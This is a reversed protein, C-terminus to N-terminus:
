ISTWQFTVNNIPILYKRNKNVIKLIILDIQRYLYSLIVYCRLECDHNTHLSKDIFKFIVIGNCYYVRRSIYLLTTGV